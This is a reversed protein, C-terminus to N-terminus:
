CMHKVISLLYMGHGICLGRALLNSPGPGAVGRWHGGRGGIILGPRPRLGAGMPEGAQAAQLEGSPLTCTDMWENMITLLEGVQTNSPFRQLAERGTQKGRM